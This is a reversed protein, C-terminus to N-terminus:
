GEGDGSKREKKEKKECSREMFPATDGFLSDQGLSTYVSAEGPLGVSKKGTKSSSRRKKRDEGGEGSGARKHLQRDATPSSIGGKTLMCGDVDGTDKDAGPVLGEKPRSKREGRPKRAKGAAIGNSAISAGSSTHEKKGSGSMDGADHRGGQVGCWFFVVSM